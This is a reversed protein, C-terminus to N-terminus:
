SRAVTVGTAEQTSSSQLRRLERLNRGRPTRTGSEWRSVTGVGLDLIRALGNQSLGLRARLQQIQIPTM